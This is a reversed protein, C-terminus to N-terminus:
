CAQFYGGKSYDSFPHLSLRAKMPFGTWLVCTQLQRVISKKSM